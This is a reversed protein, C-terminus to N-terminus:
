PAEFLFRNPSIINEKVAYIVMGATNNIGLKGMINKRHTMVTHTSICLKEGIQKNTLGEAVLRIIGVERSSLSIPACFASGQEAGGDKLADLVQGCFFKEGKAVSRLADMVEQADCDKLLHGSVGSRMANEFITKESLMTIALLRTRPAIRRVALLDEIRFHPGSYDVILIDVSRVPRAEM